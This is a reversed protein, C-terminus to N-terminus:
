VYGVYLREFLVDRPFTPRVQVEWDERMQRLIPTSAPWITALALNSEVFTPHVTCEHRVAGQEDRVTLDFAGDDTHKPRESWDRLVQITKVRISNGQPMTVKLTDVDFDERKIKEVGQWYHAKDMILDAMETPLTPLSAPQNELELGGTLMGLVAQIDEASALRPLFSFALPNIQDRLFLQFGSKGKCAEDIAQSGFVGFCNRSLFLLTLTTNVKLAEAIAQAGADGIQNGDLSIRILTKNVKLAEAIAWAGGDGIQNHRLSLVTVTSNVRLAEAIAWAGGDGIQNHKLHVYSLTANAKLAEAIAQAGGDGIQNEDLYLDTLTNNVKLAEAIAQAGADGIQNLHLLLEKLTTNARLAEAIAQAGADGIQNEQLSIKILTTNVKLAEAIAQAEAVGIQNDDLDLQGSAKKVQDYLERQRETMSEYSLM